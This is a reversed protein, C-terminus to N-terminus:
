ERGDTAIFHEIRRAAQRAFERTGESTNKRFQEPWENFYFLRNRLTFDIDLDDNWSQHAEAPNVGARICILHGRLCAATGCNPITVKRVIDKVSHNGIVRLETDFWEHMEFQGPEALIRKKAKRLLAIHDPNLHYHVINPKM